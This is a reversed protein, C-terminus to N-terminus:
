LRNINTGIVKLYEYLQYFDGEFQMLLSNQKWDCLTPNPHSSSLIFNTSFLTGVVVMVVRFLWFFFFFFTLTIFIYYYYHLLFLRKLTGNERM